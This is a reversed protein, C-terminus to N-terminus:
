ALGLSVSLFCPASPQQLIILLRLSCLSRGRGQTIQRVGLKPGRRRKAMTCVEEGLVSKVEELMM